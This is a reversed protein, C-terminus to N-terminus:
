FIEELFGWLLDGSPVKLLVSVAVSVAKSERTLFVGLLEVYDHLVLALWTQEQFVRFIGSQILNGSRGWTASLANQGRAGQRGPHELDSM